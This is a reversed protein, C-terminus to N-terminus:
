IIGAQTARLVASGAGSNQVLRVARVPSILTANTNATQTVLGTVDVWNGAAQNYGAAWIDDNTWQATYDVVGTVVVDLTVHFPSIYVDLPLMDSSGAGSTFVRAPRM